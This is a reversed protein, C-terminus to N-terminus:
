RAVCTLKYTGASSTGPAIAYVVVDVTTGAAVTVGMTQPSTLVSGVDGLYGSALNNPDFHDYAAAYLPSGPYTLTFTFCVAIGAANVFHYVDFLHSLSSDAESGPYAKTSGCASVPALRSHRGWQVADTADLSGNISAPCALLGPSDPPPGLVDSKLSDVVDPGPADRPADPADAKATPPDDPWRTDAAMGEQGDPPPDPPARDALNGVSDPWGDYTGAARDEPAAADSSADWSPGAWPSGGDGGAGTGGGPEDGAGASGAIGGGGYVDASSEGDGVMTDRGDATSADASPLTATDLDCGVDPLTSADQSGPSRLKALDVSCGALVWVLFTVGEALVPCSRFPM